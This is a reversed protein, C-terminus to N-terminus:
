EVWINVSGNVAAVLHLRDRGVQDGSSKEACQADLWRDAAQKGIGVVVAFAIMRDDDDTVVPPLRDEGAIGIDEFVRDLDAVRGEVNHAHSRGAEKSDEDTM